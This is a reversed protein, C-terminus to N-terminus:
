SPDPAPPTRSPAEVSTQAPMPAETQGTQYAVLGVVLMGVCVLFVVVATVILAIAWGAIGPRSVPVPRSAPVPPPTIGLRAEAVISAPDGLRALITRVAAETEPALDARASAIHERLDALLEDRRHPPLDHSAYAVAALYEEVLVDRHQTM